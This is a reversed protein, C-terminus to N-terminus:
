NVFIRLDNEGGDYRFSRQTKVFKIEMSFNPDLKPCKSQPSPIALFVLGRGGGSKVRGRRKLRGDGAPIIKHVQSSRQYGRPLASWRAKWRQYSGWMSPKSHFIRDVYPHNLAVGLVSSGHRDRPNTPATGGDNPLNGEGQKSWSM